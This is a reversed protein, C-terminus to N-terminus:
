AGIPIVAMRPKLFLLPMVARQNDVRRAVLRGRIIAIVDKEQAFEGREIRMEDHVPKALAFAIEVILLGAPGVIVRQGGGVAPHPRFHPHRRGVDGIHRSGCIGVEGVSAPRLFPQFVEELGAFPHPKADDVARRL